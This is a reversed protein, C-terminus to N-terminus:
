LSRHVCCRPVVQWQVRFNSNVLSSFLIIVVIFIIRYMAPSDTHWGTTACVCDNIFTICRVQLILKAFVVSTVTWILNNYQATEPEFDM